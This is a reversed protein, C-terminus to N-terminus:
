VVDIGDDRPDDVRLEVCRLGFSRLLCKLAARLRRLDADDGQPQLHLVYTPRDTNTRPCSM